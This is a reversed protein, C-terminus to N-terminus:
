DRHLNDQKSQRKSLGQLGGRFQADGEGKPDDKVRGFYLFRGRVKKAWRGSVHPFLPFKPRPKRPKERSRCATSHSAM